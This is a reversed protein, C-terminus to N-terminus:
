EQQSFLILWDKMVRSVLESQRKVGCKEYVHRLHVRATHDSIGAKRAYAKLAEGSCLAATLRAEAPTLGFVEHLYSVTRGTTLHPPAEANMLIMVLPEGLSVPSRPTVPCTLLMRQHDGNQLQFSTGGAAGRNMSTAIADQLHKLLVGTNKSDSAILKDNQVKLIDGKRLDRDALTNAYIVKRDGTVLIIGIPLHDM